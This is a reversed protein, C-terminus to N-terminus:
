GSSEVSVSHWKKLLSLLDKPDFPKSIYDDMGADLCEQKDGQLANATMAIVVPQDGPSQRIVRTADTGDMVPMQVDMLILGYRNKKWMEIAIAGDVAVEPDYGFRQLVAKAVFQNVPDDEALLIKWPYSLAFKEPHLDIVPKESSTNIPAGQERLADFVKTYLVQQRVPKTLLANFLGAYSKPLDDGMSTLLLVPLNPAREKVARAFQVGDMEPMQRDTIVLAIAPNQELLKLAEEGSRAALALLRWQKLQAELITLNTQNDDVILVWKGECGEQNKDLRTTTPLSGPRAPLTFSFCSGQGPQSSVKITGGMADVIKKCIALGLGTGGYKRTTSADGQFFAKFLKDAQEPPIGIGTDRITFRLLSCAEPLLEERQVRVFIEGKPTFKVANGVLNMLIQRLRLRDGIIQEPVDADIQYLLDIDGRAAKGSFIDLVEEICTRLEVDQEELELSGSEIKSFDLIDNIVNLLSEGSTRIINTYTRQDESLPTEILLDAMGIVGNMPTRIEHSMTALFISKAQNAKEAELKATEADARAQEAEQRAKKEHEMSEALRETREKVQTELIELRQKSEKVRQRVLFLTGGALGALVLLRFWWTMWYPPLIVLKLDTTKDSWKGRSNRCRIRLIYNGPELNTYTASHAAGINNWGKDFGELKYAYQMEQHYAYNLSAFEFSIVSQSHSLVIERADTVSIKLPTEAQRGSIPVEKNFILFNTFVLDQEFSDLRISDPYFANFGNVGGFYLAGSASKLCCHAKFEDSQLGDSVTFNTIAGTSPNFRSLGNNTSIWLNGKDDDLMGLIHQDPLGDRTSYVTERGSLHDIRNLGSKTGIWINGEPDEHICYVTNNSLKHVASDIAFHVVTRTRKDYREAGREFSGFWLYGRSDQLMCIIRFPWSKNDNVALQGSPIFKKTSYQYCNLGGDWTSIWLDKDKDLMMSAVNNGTIGGGGVPGKKLLRFTKKQPDYITTGDAVSGLWINNKDDGAIAPIYNGCISQPNHPQYTFHSFTGNKPNFLDAGGGDTGIWIQGRRDEYFALIYNNGPSNVSSNHRYTEFKGAAKSCFNIGGSFTGLWMNNQPDRYVSYISNSSLSTNDLDDHQYNLFAGDKLHLISLGGNETGIWLEDNEGAAMSIISNNSLTHPNSPDHKFHHFREDPLNLMELGGGRTGIWLRHWADEYLCQINNSTLSATDKESHLYHRFRGTQLDLANLGGNETGIWLLHRSDELVVTAIRDNLGNSNNPDYSYRTFSGTKTDMRNLGGFRTGVWLYGRTDQYLYTTSNDSLSHPDRKDYRYHTFQGKAPDLRNLGGTETTVWLIGQKDELLCTIHNDTLSGTDKPDNRYITFKYGDYKNLGDPTGFWMFGHRDQLITTVYSQSLGADPGKRIFQLQRLQASAPCSLIALLLPLLCESWKM